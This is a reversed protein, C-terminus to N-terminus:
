RTPTSWFANNKIFEKKTKKEFRRNISGKRIGWVQFINKDITPVFHLPRVITELFLPDIDYERKEWFKWWKSRPKLYCMDMFWVEPSEMCYLARYGQSTSVIATKISGNLVFDGGTNIFVDGGADILIDRGAGFTADASGGNAFVYLHNGGTSAVYFANSGSKFGINGYITGSPTDQIKIVDQSTGFAFIGSENLRFKENGVNDYAHFGTDNVRVLEDGTINYYHHGLNDGIIISNGAADKITMMGDGNGDGGLVLDGSILSGAAVTGRFTADGTEADIIFTIVGNINRGVIGTPSIRIDGSVNEEYKGIQLAGVKGFEFTGLIRRSQTDLSTSIVEDSVIRERFKIPPTQPVKSLTTAKKTPSASSGSGPDNTPFTIDSSAPPKLM